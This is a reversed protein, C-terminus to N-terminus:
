RGDDEPNPTEAPAQATEDLRETDPAADQKAAPRKPRIRICQVTKGAMETTTVYLTVRHSAWGHPDGGYLQEITTCNTANLAFPLKAGVFRAMLQRKSDRGMKAELETISEITLTIDRQPLHWWRLVRSDYFARWHAAAGLEREEFDMPKPM